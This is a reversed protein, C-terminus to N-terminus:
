LALAEAEVDPLVRKRELHRASRSRDNGANDTMSM